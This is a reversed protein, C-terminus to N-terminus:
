IEDEIPEMKRDHDSQEPRVDFLASPYTSYLPITPETRNFYRYDVQSNM